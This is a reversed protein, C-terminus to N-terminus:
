IGCTRLSFVGVCLKQLNRLGSAVRDGPLFGPCAVLVGFGRSVRPTYVTLAAKESGGM